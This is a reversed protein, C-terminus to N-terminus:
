AARCRAATRKSKYYKFAGFLLLGALNIFVAIMFAMRYDGTTQKAMAALLPGVYAAIAVTLFMIGFNVGLYKTGFFDATFPAILAM